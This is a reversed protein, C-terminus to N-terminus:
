KAMELAQKGILGLQVEQPTGADTPHWELRAREFYQVTYVKGDAPSIEPMEESIPYGFLAVGGQQQWYRLFAQKVGHGTQPFYANDASSAFPQVRPLSWGKTIWLGVPALMVVNPTGAYEPHYELVAREFYQVTRTQGDLPNVQQMEESIPYGLKDVGGHQQWFTRFGGGLTHGSQLFYSRDNADPKTNLDFLIYNNSLKAVKYNALLGVYDSQRGLWNQDASLLFAAGEQQLTQVTAINFEDPTLAWGTRQSSNFLEPASPGAVILRSGAPTAAAVDRGIALLDVSPANPQLRAFSTNWGGLAILAFGSLVVLHGIGMFWARRARAGASQARQAVSKGLAPQAQPRPPLTGAVREEPLDLLWATHPSVEYETDLERRQEHIALWIRAPLSGAWAAGVGILACLPLLLPLLVDDHRALRSSDIIVHLLGSLLWVHFLSQWAPRAGHLAGAILLVAGVLTLVREILLGVIQVYTGGSLVSALVAAVGGGGDGVQLSLADRAGSSLLWWLISAGALAFGYSIVRGRNPSQEWAARWGLVAVQRASNLTPWSLAGEAAAKQPAIMLYAAPLLLFISGSDLLAAVIGSFLAVGFARGSGGPSAASISERWRVLALAAFAQAALWSSAPSFQQGVVVSLPAISFFLLAYFAARTGATRRVLGFLLLGAILSFLIAASRGFWDGAGLSQEGIAALWGFLPLGAVPNVPAYGHWPAPPAFLRVTDLGGSVQGSLLHVFAANTAETGAPADVTPTTIGLLRWGLALGSVLAVAVVLRLSWPAVRTKVGAVPAKALGRRQKGADDTSRAGPKPTALAPGAANASRGVYRRPPAEGRAAQSRSEVQVPRSKRLADASSLIAPTLQRYRETLDRAQGALFTLEGLFRRHNDSRQM